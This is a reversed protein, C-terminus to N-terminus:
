TPVRVLEGPRVRAIAALAAPVLPRLDEIANSAAVRVIIGLRAHM